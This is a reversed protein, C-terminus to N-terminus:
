KKATSIRKKIFELWKHEDKNRLDGAGTLLAASTPSEGLKNLVESSISEKQKNNPRWNM